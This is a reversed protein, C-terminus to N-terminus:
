KLRLFDHNGISAVVKSDDYWSLDTAHRKNIYHYTNPPLVRPLGPYMYTYVVQTAKLREASTPERSVKKTWSFQEQQYVVGCITDPYRKSEVRNMTVEIVAVMGTVSEGAAEYIVNDILCDHELVTKGDTSAGMLLAVMSIELLTM